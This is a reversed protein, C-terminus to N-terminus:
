CKFVPAVLRRRRHAVSDILQMLDERRLFQAARRGLLVRLIDFHHHNTIALHAFRKRLIRCLRIDQPYEAVFADVSIQEGRETREEFWMVAQVIMGNKNMRLEKQVTHTVSLFSRHVQTNELLKAFHVPHKIAIKRFAGPTKAFHVPHKIACRYIAKCLWIDTCTFIGPLRSAALM